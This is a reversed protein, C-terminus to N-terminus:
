HSEMLVYVGYFPLSYYVLGLREVDASQSANQQRYLRGINKTSERSLWLEFNLENRLLLAERQLGSIVQGLHSVSKEQERSGESPLPVESRVPSVHM